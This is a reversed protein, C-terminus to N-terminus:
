SDIDMAIQPQSSSHRLRIQGQKRYQSPKANFVGTGKGTCFIGFSRKLPSQAPIVPRTDEEGDDETGTDDAATEDPEGDADEDEDEDSSSSGDSDMARTHLRVRHPSKSAYDVPHRGSKELYRSASSHGIRRRKLEAGYRPASRRYETHEVSEVLM